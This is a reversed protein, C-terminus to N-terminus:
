DRVALKKKFRNVIEESRIELEKMTEFINDDIEKTPSYNLRKFVENIQNRIFYYDFYDQALALRVEGSDLKHREKLRLYNDKFERIEKLRTNVKELIKVIKEKETGSESQYEIREPIVIPMPSKSRYLFFLMLKKNEDPTIDKHLEMFESFTGQFRKIEGALKRSISQKKFVVKKVSGLEKEWKKVDDEAEKVVTPYFEIVPTELREIKSEPSNQQIMRVFYYGVIVLIIILTLEM